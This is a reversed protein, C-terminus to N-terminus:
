LIGLGDPRKGSWTAWASLLADWQHDNRITVQLPPTFQNLLWNVMEPGFSYKRQTLAFHLVKPHTENLRIDPWLQRLRLAMAMGQVAMSGSASNSAFISHVVTPYTARLLTDMPRWGAQGTAWSLYTDIGAADPVSDGLQDQLWALGQDVHDCTRVMARPAGADPIELIALGSAGGPDYGIIHM